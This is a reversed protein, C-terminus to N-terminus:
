WLGVTPVVPQEVSRNFRGTQDVPKVSRNSQGTPSVPQVSMNSWNNPGVLQVSRNNSRDHPAVPQVSRNDVLDGHVITLSTYDLWPEGSRPGVGCSFEVSGHMM